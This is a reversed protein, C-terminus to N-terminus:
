GAVKVRSNDLNRGLAIVKWGAEQWARYPLVNRGDIVLRNSVLGGLATADVLAYDRWETGVVVLEAGRVADALDDEVPLHPYMRRVNDAAKPDHITLEAGAGWLLEAVAMAPSDRIDDTEPKFAAGLLTVRRGTLDGLEERAIEVVRTRRRLNIDEVQALFSVSETLGLENARAQFARIDKPLCGGGFGIGTKLFKKGIREDYGIAEALAVADAGVKEAIEAMANIFSIKTALFSNAAAKVLEATKVDVAVLPVGASTMPEYLERLMRESHPESTGIVIRDPELTDKLATGERLFEPNWAFYPAFSIQQELRWSLYEATGVPVTSKGVVVADPRLYPALGDVAQELYSLDAGLGTRSQPTGVCLLFVDANASSRTHGTQIVLDHNTLADSLADDLEPEFFPARGARLSEVKAVDPDIGIVRHGVLALAAATTAGLYGLGIVVITKSV